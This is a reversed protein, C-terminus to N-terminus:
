RAPGRKVKLYDDIHRLITKQDEPPLQDVDKLRKLLRRNKILPGNEAVPRRGMVQDISIDLAKALRLVIEASPTQINTEYHAIMRQSVGTARALDRQTLGKEQRIHALREAFPTRSKAAATM